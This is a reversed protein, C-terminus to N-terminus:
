RPALGVAPDARRLRGPLDDARHHVADAAGHQLGRRAGRGDLGPVARLLGARDAHVARRIDHDQGAPPDAAVPLGLRDPRRCVQPARDVGSIRGHFYGLQFAFGWVFVMNLWEFGPLQYRFRLIDIIVAFGALFVLVLADYRRHLWVTIPMMCVFFLYTFVFWLPSLVMLVAQGMWTLDFVAGVIVGLIVWTVLLAASPIALSKAQRLAFHWIREGRASAREWSKLHVYAGIYFFIPLM